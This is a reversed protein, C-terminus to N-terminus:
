FRKPIPTTSSLVPEQTPDQCSSISTLLQRSMQVKQSGTMWNVTISRAKRAYVPMWVPEQGLFDNSDGGQILGIVWLLARTTLYPLLLTKRPTVRSGTKRTLCTKHSLVCLVPKLVPAPESSTCSAAQNFPVLQGQPLHPSPHHSNLVFTDQSVFSLVPLTTVTFIGSSFHILVLVSQCKKGWHFLLHWFM